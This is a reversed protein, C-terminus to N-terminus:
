KAAAIATMIREEADKLDQKTVMNESFGWQRTEVKDMSTSTYGYSGMILLFFIFLVWLILKWTARQRTTCEEETVNASM